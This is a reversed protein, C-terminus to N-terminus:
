AWKGSSCTLSLPLPLLRAEQGKVRPGVPPLSLSELAPETPPRSGWRYDRASPVTAASPWLGLGGGCVWSLLRCTAAGWPAGAQDAPRVQRTLLARGHSGGESM